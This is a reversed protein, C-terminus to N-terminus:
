PLSCLRGLASLCRPPSGGDGTTREFITVRRTPSPEGSGATEPFNGSRLFVDPNKNRDGFTINAALSAFVVTNGDDTVAPSYSPGNAARDLVDASVLTLMGSTRDHRFIDAAGNVDGPLLNDAQSAFVVWDGDGSIAVGLTGSDANGEVGDKTQSVRSISGDDSEWVFIDSVGNGDGDILNSAASDFAVAAGDASLSLSLLGSGGNAASGGASSVRITEGSAVNHQYVHGVQRDGGASVVSSFAVVSGDDNIATRVCGGTPNDTPTIRLIQGASTHALFLDSVGNDDGDTLNSATSCFAAV